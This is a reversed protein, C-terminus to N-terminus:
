VNLANKFFQNPVFGRMSKSIQLMKMNLLCFLLACLSFSFFNKIKKDSSM